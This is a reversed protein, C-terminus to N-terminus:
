FSSFPKCDYEDCYAKLLSLSEIIRRSQLAPFNINNVASLWFWNGFAVCFFLAGCHFVCRSRSSFVFGVQLRDLDSVLGLPSIFPLCTWWPQRMRTVQQKDIAWWRAFIARFISSKLSLIEQEKKESNLWVGLGTYLGKGVCVSMLWFFNTKRNNLEVECAQENRRQRTSKQLM